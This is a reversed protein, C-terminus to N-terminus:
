LQESGGEAEAIMLVDGLERAAPLARHRAPLALFVERARVTVLGARQAGTLGTMTNIVLSSAAVTDGDHAFCSARDLQILTRDLYDQAPYLELAQDQAVWAAATDHLHTFTNGEHFRYQAENYGFASAARSDDDLQALAAEARRLAARAQADRGMLSFARAELAAALAVGVCSVKGAIAQAQQAVMLAEPYDGSYYYAYSEQARVWSQVSTDGAEDAALRATRAWNRSAARADLKILTLSMLGAMQATVRTLRRLGSSSQRLALVRRLEAFDTTLDLLLAGPSRFRTAHAYRVATREWDDLGAKAVRAQRWQTM